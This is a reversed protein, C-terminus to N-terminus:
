WRVGPMQNSRYVNAHSVIPRTSTFIVALLNHKEEPDKQLNYLELACAKEPMQILNTTMFQSVYLM